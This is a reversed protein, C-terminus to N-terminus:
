VINFTLNNIGYYKSIDQNEAFYDIIGNVSVWSDMIEGFDRM